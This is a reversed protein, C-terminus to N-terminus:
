QSKPAITKRFALSSLSIFAVNTFMSAFTKRFPHSIFAFHRRLPCSICAFHPAFRARFPSLMTAFVVYTFFCRKVTGGSRPWAAIHRSDYLDNRFVFVYCLPHALRKSTAKCKRLTSNPETQGSHRLLSQRELTDFYARDRGCTSTLETEAFHRLLSQRELIVSYARDRWLTSTLETEGSHRLFSQRELIDNKMHKQDTRPIMKWASSFDRLRLGACYMKQRRTSSKFFHEIIAVAVGGM